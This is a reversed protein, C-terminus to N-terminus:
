PFLSQQTSSKQDFKGDQYDDWWAQVENTKNILSNAPHEVKLTYAETLCYDFAQRGSKTPSTTGPKYVVEKRELESLRRGISHREMKCYAAIGEYNSKGLHQLAQIIKEHHSEIMGKKAEKYAAHSTQPVSHSM